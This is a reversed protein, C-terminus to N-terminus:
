ERRLHASIVPAILMVILGLPMLGGRPLDYDSLIQEWSLGMVLFGLGVEFVFTLVVWVSGVFLQQGLTRASTWRRFGYAIVVIIVSGTFVAVQRAVFDGTLPALFLARLTGHVSEAGAIVLWVAFSRFLLRSWHTM